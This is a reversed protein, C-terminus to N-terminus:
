SPLCNAGNFNATGLYLRTYSWTLDRGTLEQKSLRVFMEKTYHYVLCCLLFNSLFTHRIYIPLVSCIRFLIMFNFTM